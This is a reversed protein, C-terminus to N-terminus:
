DIENRAFNMLISMRGRLNKPKQGIYDSENGLFYAPNEALAIIM